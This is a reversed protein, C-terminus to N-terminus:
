RRKRRGRGGEQQPAALDEPTGSSSEEEEESRADSHLLTPVKDPDPLIAMDGPMPDIRQGWPTDNAASDLPQRPQPPVVSATKPQLTVVDVCRGDPTRVEILGQAAKARIEDFHDRLLTETVLLPRGRVLRLVGGGLFQILGKHTPSQARVIRTSRARVTSHIAFMAPM